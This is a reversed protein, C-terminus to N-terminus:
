ISRWIGSERINQNNAQIIMFKEPYALACKECLDKDCINCIKNKEKNALVSLLQWNDPDNTGDKSLPRRHNYNALLSHKYFYNGRLENSLKIGTINCRGNFKIYIENRQQFTLTKRFEPVQLLLFEDSTKTGYRQFLKDIDLKVQMVRRADKKEILFNAFGNGIRLDSHARNPDNLVGNLLHINIFKPYAKLLEKLVTFARKINLQFKLTKNNYTIEVQKKKENLIRFTYNTLIIIDRRLM